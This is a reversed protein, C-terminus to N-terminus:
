ASLHNSKSFLMPSFKLISSVDNLLPSSYVITVFLAALPRLPDITAMTSPVFASSIILTKFLIGIFLLSCTLSTVNSIAAL